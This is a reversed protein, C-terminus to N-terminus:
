AVANAQLRQLGSRATPRVLASKPAVIVVKTCQRSGCPGRIQSARCTKTRQGRPRRRLSWSAPWRSRGPRLRPPTEPPASMTSRLSGAAPASPATGVPITRGRHRRDGAAPRHASHEAIQRHLRLDQARPGCLRRGGADVHDLDAEEGAPLAPRRGRAPAAPRGPVRSTATRNASWSGSVSSIGTSASSPKGADHEVSRVLAAAAQEVM